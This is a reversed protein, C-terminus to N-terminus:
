LTFLSNRPSREIESEFPFSGGEDIFDTMHGIPHSARVIIPLKVIEQSALPLLNVLLVIVAVRHQDKDESSQQAFSPQFFGLQRSQAVVFEGLDLEKRSHSILSRLWVYEADERLITIIVSEEVAGPSLTILTKSHISSLYCFIGHTKRM